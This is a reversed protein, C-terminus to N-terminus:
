IWEYGLTSLIGSALSGAEEDGKEWKEVLQVIGIYTDEPEYAQRGDNSFVTEEAADLDSGKLHMAYDDGDTASCFRKLFDGYPPVDGYTMSPNKLFRLHSPFRKKAHRSRFSRRASDLSAAVAQSAPRGADKMESINERIVKQSWGSKLPNFSYSPLELGLENAIKFVQNRQAAAEATRMGAAEPGVWPSGGSRLLLNRLRNLARQTTDDIEMRHSLEIAVRRLLKASQPDTKGLDKHLELFKRRDIIKWFGDPYRVIDATRQGPNPRRGEDKRAGGVMTARRAMAPTVAPEVLSLADSQNTVTKGQPEGDIFVTYHTLGPAPHHFFVGKEKRGAKAPRVFSYDGGGHNEWRYGMGSLIRDLTTGALRPDNRAM